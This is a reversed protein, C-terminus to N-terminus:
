DYYTSSTYGYYSCGYYASRGRYTYTYHPRLQTHGYYSSCAYHTLGYCTAGYGSCGDYELYTRWARARHGKWSRVGLRSSVVRWARLRHRREIQKALVGLGHARAPPHELHHM